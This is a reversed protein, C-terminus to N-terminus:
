HDGVNTNLLIQIKLFLKPLFLCIILPLSILILYHSLCNARTITSIHNAASLSHHKQIYHLLKM